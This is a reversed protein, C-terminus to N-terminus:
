ICSEQKELCFNKIGGNNIIQLDIIKIQNKTRKLYIASIMSIKLWMVKTFINTKWRLSM